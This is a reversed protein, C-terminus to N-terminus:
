QLLGYVDLEKRTGVFVRGNAVLPITFRLAQGARDRAGAQESNYLESSVDCAAYAHLVAPPGSHQWDYSSIAWVIADQNGRSSVAPTAGADPYKPSAAARVARLGRDGPALDRLVDGGAVVYIHGNWFAPAGFLAHKGFSWTGLANADSGAHYGGMHDRDILYLKGGKGGSLLLHPHKGPQDPLLVPGGSGLDEDNADLEKQNFPTFYDAVALKGHDLRVKLVSDGFDHGGDAADFRGNGTVVFVNGADDAAPATDSLWIGGDNADPSTNLVAAQKLTHADYAMLWGHYPGADCSSAWTLYLMGQSLLLGARPNERRPDFLIAGNTNGVGHGRTWAHIAVPGGFKEAGTTIALAHLKQVYEEGLVGKKEKTRALVYLTGTEADIVPTSTIGVEPAILPCELDGAPVPTVGSALFTVHWLAAGQGRAQADFAYVSDHETAVYVVDHMGKGPINVGPLYLPQAYIPGDVPFSGVKGFHKVDVNAPTLIFENLNAGTRAPGFQSTIVPRPVSIVTGALLLTAGFITCRRAVDAIRM